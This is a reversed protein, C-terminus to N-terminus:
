SASSSRCAQKDASVDVARCHVFASRIRVERVPFSASVAAARTPTVANKAFGKLGASSNCANDCNRGIPSTLRSLIRRLASRAFPITPSSGCWNAICKRFTGKPRDARDLCPYGSPAACRVAQTESMKREYGNRFIGALCGPRRGESGSRRGRSTHRGPGPSPCCFADGQRHRAHGRQKGDINPHVLRGM